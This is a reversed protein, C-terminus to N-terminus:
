GKPLRGYLCRLPQAELALMCYNCRLCKSQTQAGKALRAVFDPQCVLPRSLAVFDAQESAIAQRIDALDHVGGVVIVPIDVCQRIFAAAQLNYASLPYFNSRTLPRLLGIAARLPRPIKKYQYMYRLAAPLPLKEGRSTSLGDAANGCSVEIAAAGYSQLRRSVQIAESLRMGNPQADEANIKVLVPFDSGVRAHIAAFIEKLIRCRGDTDGGYEDERQNAAPSLFDSLLYGHAAHLQVGDFGAELARGAARAFCHVIDTIQIATLAQPMDKKFRKHRIASPAVTPLGTICSRTQRGCHNLQAFVPVGCAHVAETLARYAPLLADDDLKCMSAFHSRGAQTVAIQGTLIGGVGGKALRTYLQALAPLPAGEPTALGEDTASRLLRNPLKVGGIEGPSFPTDKM